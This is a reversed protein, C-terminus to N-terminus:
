NPWLAIAAAAVDTANAVQDQGFLGLQLIYGPVIAIFLTALADASPGKPLTGAKQYGRIAEALDARMQQVGEEFRKALAPNRIAESWVLAAMRGLDTEQNKKEVLRLVEALTAGLGGDRQGGALAHIVSVVVRMNEEAIAMIMDDKSPFYLYVSGSSLGAESFLDQMSTEHFGKRLFCRRAAALIQERRADRYQQTVKPM